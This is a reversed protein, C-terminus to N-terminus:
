DLARPEDSLLKFLVPDRLVQRLDHEKGDIVVHNSVLRVGHSYDAYYDAHRLFIPQQAHGDPHHWGYIVVEHPYQPSLRRWCTQIIDKKLGSIFQGLRYGRMEFMRVLVHNHDQYVIPDSNRNGRPRFAFIDLAGEAVDNIRDVMYATPLSCDMESAIRHAAIPSMPMRVYDSDTGVMLYDPLVLLEVRHPVHLAAVSDVVATEIVIKRFYRMVDPVQGALVADVIASDLAWFSLSDAKLMFDWGQLSSAPKNTYYPVAVKERADLWSRDGRREYRLPQAALVAEFVFLSVIILVACRCFRKDMDNVM